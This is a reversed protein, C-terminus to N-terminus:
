NSERLATDLGAWIPSVLYNAVTQVSTAIMVQAPMGPSVEVGPLTALADDSVSVHVKFFTQGTQRDVFSDASVHTVDGEVPPTTRFDYATLRVRAVSGEAVQDVDEPRVQAEVVYQVGVPVIKLIDEGDQIVEGPATFQLDLVRGTAPARIQLRQKVDENAVIQQRIDFLLAKVQQRQESLASARDRKVQLMRVKTEAIRQRLGELQSEGFNLEGSLAAEADRREMVRPKTILGQDYLKQMDELEERVYDVRKKMAEQRSISGNLQQTQEDYRETLIEIQGRWMANNSELLERQTDFADLYSSDHRILKALEPSPIMRDSGAFEAALRQDRAMAHALQNLLIRDQAVSFTDELQILVQGAEVYDGERVMVERVIGGELHQVVPLNGEVKFKGGAVVAGQIPALAAWSGLGGWFVLIAVLLLLVTGGIRTPPAVIDKTADPMEDKLAPVMGQRTMLDRSM